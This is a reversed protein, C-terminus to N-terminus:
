PPVGIFCPRCLGPPAPAAPTRQQLGTRHCAAERAASPHTGRQGAALAGFCDEAMMAPAGQPWGPPQRRAAPLMTAGNGRTLPLSRAPPLAPLEPAPVGLMRLVAEALQGASAETSANRTGSACGCCGSCAAPWPASRSGPTPCPSGPRPRGRRSTACRERHWATPPNWHTWAAGTLFGAIEPHTWGLRGSIRLGVAHREAPDTIGASARDIMQGWRELVLKPPPRSCSSRATSTTTSCVRLRHRGGRHDRRHQGPGRPGRRDAAGRRRSRRRTRAKRRDLRSDRLAGAAPAAQAMVAGERRAAYGLLPRATRHYGPGRGGGAPRSGSEAQVSSARHHQAETPQAPPGPHRVEALRGASSLVIGM